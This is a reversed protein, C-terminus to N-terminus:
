NETAEGLEEKMKELAEDTAEGAKEFAGEDGTLEEVNEQVSEAADDIAQGAKEAPGEEQCAVSAFSLAIALGAIATIRSVHM